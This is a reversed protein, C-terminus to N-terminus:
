YQYVIRGYYVKDGVIIRVDYMGAAWKSTFAAEQRISGHYMAVRDTYVSAGIANLIQITAEGSYDSNTQLDIMFTGSTPNPYLHLYYGDASSPNNSNVLLSTNVCSNCVPNM